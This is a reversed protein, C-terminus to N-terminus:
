SEISSAYHFLSNIIEPRSYNHLTGAENSGTGKLTVVRSDSVRSLAQLLSSEDDFLSQLIM